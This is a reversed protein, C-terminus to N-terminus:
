QVLGSANFTLTRPENENGLTGLGIGNFSVEIGGANGTRVIITKTARILKRKDAALVREMVSKGDATVSVWSDENAKIGISFFKPSIAPSQAANSVSGPTTGIAGTKASPSPVQTETNAPSPAPTPAVFDVPKSIQIPPSKLTSNEKNLNYKWIAGYVAGLFSLVFLWTVTRSLLNRKAKSKPMRPPDAVTGSERVPITPIQVNKISDAATLRLVKVIESAVAEIGKVTSVAMRDALTPSFQAVFEHDVRHWVPLIVKGEISERAALGDLERKPWHKSFFDKSLIIVGFRSSSLGHDIKSRLSDGLTLENEDLWVRFGQKSLADALPRAVEQKDESAHSIFVDWSYRSTM